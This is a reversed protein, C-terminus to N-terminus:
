NVLVSRQIINTQQSSLAVRAYTSLNGDFTELPWPFMLNDRVDNQVRCDVITICSNTDPLADSGTTVNGDSEIIHTVGLYHGILQAVEEAALRIEDSNVQIGGEGDYNFKGDPGAVAFLSVAAASRTSPVAPGPDGTSISYFADQATLGIVDSGFVINIAHPRTAKSLAEYFPDNSNPDPLTEPGPYPIWEVDLTLNGAGLLSAAKSVVSELSDRTDDSGAVPGVLVINVAVTGHNLDSDKNILLDASIEAFPVPSQSNPDFLLYKATYSTRVVNFPSFPFNLVNISSALTLPGRYAAELPGLPVVGQNDNLSVLRTQFEQPHVALQYAKINSDVTFSFTALGNEDTTTTLSREELVVPAPSGGSDIEGGDGDSGSTCASVFTLVISCLILGFTRHLKM